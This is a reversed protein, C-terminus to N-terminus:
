NIMANPPIRRNCYGHTVLAFHESTSINELPALDVLLYAVNLSIEELTVRALCQGVVSDSFDKGRQAYDLYASVYGKYESSRLLMETDTAASNNTVLDEYTDIFAAALQQIKPLTYIDGAQLVPTVLVMLLLVLGRIAKRATTISARLRTPTIVM